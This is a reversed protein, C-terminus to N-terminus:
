DERRMMRNKFRSLAIIFQRMNILDDAGYEIVDFARLIEAVLAIVLFVINFLTGPM